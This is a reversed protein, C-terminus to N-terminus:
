IYNLRFLAVAPTENLEIADAGAQPIPHRFEIRQHNKHPSVVVIEIKLLGDRGEQVWFEGIGQTAKNGDSPMRFAVSKKNLDSYTWKCNVWQPKTM